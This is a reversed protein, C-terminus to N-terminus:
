SWLQEDLYRVLPWVGSSTNAMVTYRRGDSRHHASRFSVGADMGELMVVDASSRLWFGLGYAPEQEPLERPPTTMATVMADSVIKGAFLASWFAEMDALSLYVGGDGGGVVPLHFINSRGNELYGHAVATPLEDSRLFDATKMEAPDFVREGVLEHYPKGGAREIAISLMVYGSNNYAFREGPASVQPHRDILPLYDDPTQLTHASVGIVHDDIHGLQEEDLYDGVGSTHGLLQEITVAPDVEPLQRGVLECFTTALGLEGSEILSAATLATFGKTASATAFRTDVRNPIGHARHALGRAFESVRAGDSAVAAVGSFEIQDAITTLEGIDFVSPTDCERWSSHRYPTM